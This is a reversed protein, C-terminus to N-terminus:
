IQYQQEEVCSDGWGLDSQTGQTFAESGQTDSKELIEFLMDELEPFSIRDYHALKCMKALVNKIEKNEISDIYHSLKGTDMSLNRRYLHSMDRLHIVSLLTVGLTFVSSKNSQKYINRTTLAKLTEPSYYFGHKYSYDFIYESMESSVIKVQGEQTLVIDKPHLTLHVIDNKTLHAM